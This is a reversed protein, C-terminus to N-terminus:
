RLVRTVEALAADIHERVEAVYGLIEEACDGDESWDLPLAERYEQLRSDSVAQWAGSMRGFDFSKGHLDRFFIHQTPEKLPELGGVQWPPKWGIIGHWMFALEHDFIAFTRGDSQCNPNVPRRLSM